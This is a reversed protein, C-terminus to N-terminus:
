PFAVSMNDEIVVNEIQENYKQFTCRCDSCEKSPVVSKILERHKDSGWWELIQEPNPFASGIKFRPMMKKDVCAYANGDTLIPILLPTALCRKFNQQNHLNKDFKDFNAFVKFNEDELEHCKDIQEEIAQVDFHLKKHGEIDNREFDVPRCNFSQLGLEKALRCSSLIWDKNEPLILMRYVLKVKSNCRNKLSVLKRINVLVDKFKDRGMTQKYILSVPAQVSLTIWQCTMIADALKDSIKVANTFLATMMGKDAARILTEPVGSHLSPEGGGSICLGRVGWQALFDVLGLMYRTPLARMEGVEKRNTRLYRQGICFYCSLNCEAFPDLNCEVPPTLEGKGDLWTVIKKYNEYYTLGKYSNFSNYKSVTAWEKM